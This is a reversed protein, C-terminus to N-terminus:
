RGRRLLVHLRLWQLGLVRPLLRESHPFWAVNVLNWGRRRSPPFIADLKAWLLVLVGLSPIGKGILDLYGGFQRFFGMVGEADMVAAARFVSWIAANVALGGCILVIGLAVIAVNRQAGSWLVLAPAFGRIGLAGVLLMLVNCIMSAADAMKTM